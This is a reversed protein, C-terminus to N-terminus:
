SIDKITNAVTRIGKKLKENVTDPHMISSFHLVVIKFPEGSIYRKEVIKRVDDEPILSVVREFLDTFDKAAKYKEQQEDTLHEKRGLENVIKKFRKYEDLCYKTENVEVDTAEPFLEM